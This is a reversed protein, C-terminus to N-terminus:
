GERKVVDDYTKPENLRKNMPDLELSHELLAYACKSCVVFKRNLYKDVCNSFMVTTGPVSFSKNCLECIM